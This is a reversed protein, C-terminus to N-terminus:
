YPGYINGPRRQHVNWDEPNGHGNRPGNGHIDNGLDNGWPDREAFASTEASIGFSNLAADIADAASSMGKDLNSNIVGVVKEALDAANDIVAAVDVDDIAATVAEFVSSLLIDIPM